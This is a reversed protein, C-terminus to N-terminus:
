EATIIHNATDTISASMGFAVTAALRPEPRDGVYETSHDISDHSRSSQRSHERSDQGDHPRL